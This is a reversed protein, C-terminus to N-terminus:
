GSRISRQMIEIVAVNMIERMNGQMCWDVCQLRDCVRTENTYKFTVNHMTVDHAFYHVNSDDFNHRFQVFCLILCQPAKNGYKNKLFYHTVLQLLSKFLKKFNTIIVSLFLSHNLVLNHCYQSLTKDFSKLITSM